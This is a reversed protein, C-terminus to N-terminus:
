VETRLTMKRARAAARMQRKRRVPPGSISAIISMLESSLDAVPDSQDLDAAQGHGRRHRHRTPATAPSGRAICRGSPVLTLTEGVRDLVLKLAAQVLRDRGTPIGLRRRKGGPKPIMQERVPVPRFTRARLDTRLKALFASRCAEWAGAPLFLEDAQAWQNLRFRRFPRETTTRIATALRGYVV